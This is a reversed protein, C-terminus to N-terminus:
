TKPNLMDEMTVKWTAHEGMDGSTSPMQVGVSGVGVGVSVGVEVTVFDGDPMDALIMAMMAVDTTRTTIAAATTEATSMRRRIVFCDIEAVPMMLLCIKASHSNSM